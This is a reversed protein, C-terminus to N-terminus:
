ENIHSHSWMATCAYKGLMETNHFSPINYASVLYSIPFTERRNMLKHFSANVEVILGKKHTTLYGCCQSRLFALKHKNNNNQSRIDTLKSQDIIKIRFDNPADRCIESFSPHACWIKKVHNNLIPLKFHVFDCNYRKIM